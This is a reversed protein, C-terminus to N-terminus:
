NSLHRKYPITLLGLPEVAVVRFYHGHSENAYAGTRIGQVLRTAIGTLLLHIPVM